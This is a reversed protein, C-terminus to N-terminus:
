ADSLWKELRAKIQDRVERFKVLREAESGTAAAPDDFPWYLRKEVGPWIRPCTGQAKDCVVVLWHVPLKGLYQEVSKAYQGQLDCGVEAMVTRTLPNIEKPDMGASYASFRDPALKRLWAEAMQSRASNGTCLFLVNQRTKM